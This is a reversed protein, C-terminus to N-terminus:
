TTQDSGPDAGVGRMVFDNIAGALARDDILGDPFIWDRFIVAALVSSFALRVLVRPDDVTRGRTRTKMMAAARDFYTKLSDIQAVGHAGGSDYTQTVILSTLLQANDAVFRQLETTYRHTQARHAAPDDAVPLHTEVFHRFHEEIPQFVTERFLNAKSGFYRFLQAETVDARRAIVATTTGAYGNRKFEEAAAHVIRELLDPASRRKRVAPARDAVAKNARRTPTQPKRTKPM